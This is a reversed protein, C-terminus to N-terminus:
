WQAGAVQKVTANLRNWVNILSIQLILAALQPEDYHRAAEDWVDDPVPDPRDALRTVAETLALAAREADTFYPAERWAAVAFLRKDTEGDKKALRPHMDVCVSCGNIQSARLHVLHTTRAPLGGGDAANGLAQLATVADPLVLAPNTMRAKM